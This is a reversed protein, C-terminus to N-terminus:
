HRDHGPAPHRTAEPWGVLWATVRAIFKNYEVFLVKMSPRSPVADEIIVLGKPGAIKLDFAARRM